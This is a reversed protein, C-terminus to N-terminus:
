LYNSIKSKIEEKSRSGIVRDVLEGNKFILITPLSMIGYKIVARQNESTDLKGFVVGDMEMALEDIISHIIKCPKCWPAWCDVAVLPYKTFDTISEDSIEVPHMKM